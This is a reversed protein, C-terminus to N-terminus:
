GTWLALASIPVHLPVPILSITSQTQRESTSTADVLSAVSHYSM